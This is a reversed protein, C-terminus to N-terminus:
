LIERAYLQRCARNMDKDDKGDATIYNGLYKVENVESLNKGCLSFPQINADKLMKSRILTLSKKLILYLIM